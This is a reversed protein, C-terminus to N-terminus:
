FTSMDGHETEIVILRRIHLRYCEFTRFIKHVIVEYMYYLTTSQKIQSPAKAVNYVRLSHHKSVLWPYGLVQTRLFGIVM